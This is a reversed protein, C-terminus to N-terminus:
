TLFIRESYLSIWEICICTPSTKWLILGFLWLRLILVCKDINLLSSIQKYVNVGNESVCVFDGTGTTTLLEKLSTLDKVWLHIELSKRCTNISLNGKFKSLSANDQYELKAGPKLIFDLMYTFQCDNSTRLNETMEKTKIAKALWLYQM